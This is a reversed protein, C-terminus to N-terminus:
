ARGIKTPDIEQLQRVLERDAIQQFGSAIEKNFNHQDIQFSQIKNISDYIQIINNNMDHQEESIADLEKNILSIHVICYTIAAIAILLLISLTIVTTIM